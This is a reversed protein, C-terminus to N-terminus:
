DNTPEPHMRTPVCGNSIWIPPDMCGCPDHICCDDCQGSYRQECHGGMSHCLWGGFRWLARSLADALTGGIGTALLDNDM